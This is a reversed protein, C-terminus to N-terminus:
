TKSVSPIQCTLTWSAAPSGPVRGCCWRWLLRALQVRHAEMCASAGTAHLGDGFHSVEGGHRSVAGGAAVIGREGFITGSGGCLICETLSVSTNPGNSFAASDTGSVGTADASVMAGAEAVISAVYGHFHCNSLSAITAGGSAILGFCASFTCGTFAAAAGHVVSM